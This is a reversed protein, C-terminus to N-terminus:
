ESNKWRWNMMAPTSGHAVTREFLNLHSDESFLFVWDAYPNNYGDIEIFPTWDGSTCPYDCSAYYWGNFNSPFSTYKHPIGVHLRGRYYAITPGYPDDISGGDYVQYASSWVQNVYDLIKFRAVLSSDKYAVYISGRVYVASFPSRTEVSTAVASSWASGDYEMKRVVATTSLDAVDRYFLVLHGSPVYLAVPAVSTSAGSRTFISSTTGNSYLKVYKIANSDNWFVWLAGDFVVASAGASATSVTEPSSWSCAAYYACTRYRYKLYGGEVTFVYRRLVNNVTFQHTPVKM